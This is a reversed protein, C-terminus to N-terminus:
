DFGDAKWGTANRTWLESHIYTEPPTGIYFQISMDPDTAASMDGYAQVKYGYSTGGRTIRILAKFIGGSTRAAQNRYRFTVGSPSPRFDSPSLSGSWIVGRTNSLVWGVDSISMNVPAPPEVRGHSSFIDLAGNKGFRITSPDKKIDPCPQPCDLVDDCDVLGDCDDDVM